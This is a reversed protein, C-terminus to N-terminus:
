QDMPGFLADGADTPTTNEWDDRDATAPELKSSPKPNIELVSGVLTAPLEDNSEIGLRDRVEKPLTVRGRDDVTLTLEKESNEDASSKGM